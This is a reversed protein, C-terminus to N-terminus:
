EPYEDYLRHQWPEKEQHDAYFPIFETEFRLVSGDPAQTVTCIYGGVHAALLKKRMFTSQDCFCGGLVIHVNRMFFVGAKHYHGILLINPKEGGSLAEVLKQPKYSLSYASGGGPHQVRISTKGGEPTEVIFDHEMYGLYKVDTRGFAEEARTQMYWGIDVGSNQVYWGEHDDGCIFYTTIGKRKPWNRCWFDVQNAMGHVELDFKNFRAEGDLQNGCDFVTTVGERECIDFFTNLNDLRCYRSCLHADTAVGFKFTRTKDLYEIHRVSRGGEALPAASAKGEELNILLHEEKMSEILTKAVKPVLNFEDCLEVLSIPHSVSHVRKLIKQKLKTDGDQEGRRLVLGRDRLHRVFHDIKPLTSDYKLALEVDKLGNNYDEIFRIEDKPKWM